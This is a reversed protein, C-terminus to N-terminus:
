SGELPLPDPPGYRTGNPASGYWAAKSPAAGSKRRLNRLSVSIGAQGVRCDHCYPCEKAPGWRARSPPQAASLWVADAQILDVESECAEKLSLAAKCGLILSKSMAHDQVKLVCATWHRRGEGGCQEWVQRRGATRHVVLAMMAKELVGEFYGWSKM